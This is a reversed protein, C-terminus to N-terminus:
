NNRGAKQWLGILKEIRKAVFEPKELPFMHGGIPVVEHQMKNKAIFTAIPKATCVNSNEGTLMLAPVQLNGYFHQLNLPFRKFIEAEVKHSFVLEYGKETLTIASNIYDDISQPHMNKFLQKQSFYGTLDTDKPWQTCRTLAKHTPTIRNFLGTLKLAKLGM